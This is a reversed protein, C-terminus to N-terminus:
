LNTARWRMQNKPAPSVQLRAVLSSLFCKRQSAEESVVDGSARAGAREYRRGRGRQLRNPTAEGVSKYMNLRPPMLSDSPLTFVIHMHM